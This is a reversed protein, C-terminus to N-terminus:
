FQINLSCLVRGRQNLFLNVLLEKNFYFNPMDSYIHAHSANAPGFEIYGHPTTNRLGWSGM